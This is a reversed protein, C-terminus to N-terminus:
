APLIRETQCAKTSRSPELSARGSWAIVEGRPSTDNETTSSTCRQCAANWRRWSSATSSVCRRGSSTPRARGASTKQGESAATGGHLAQHPLEIRGHAGLTALARLTCIGRWEVSQGDSWALWDFTWGGDELQARELLDLDADIQEGAFLARSRADPRPSLALPTLRENETGGVVSVSGDANLGPACRRSRRRSVGSPPCRTSSGLAFKVLYGGAEDARALEAWCWDTAVTLWPDGCGARTLAAVLAFTLQSGGPSPVMWPAHPYDVDHPLVVPVGGNPEAIRAIWAAADPVM